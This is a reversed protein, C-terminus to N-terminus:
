LVIGNDPPLVMRECMQLAAHTREKRVDSEVTRFVQGAADQAIRKDYMEGSDGFRRQSRSRGGIWGATMNWYM